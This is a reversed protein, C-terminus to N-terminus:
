GFNQILLAFSSLNSLMGGLSFTSVLSLKACVKTTAAPYSCMLVIRWAFMRLVCICAFARLCMWVCRLYVCIGAVCLYVSLGCADYCVIDGICETCLM